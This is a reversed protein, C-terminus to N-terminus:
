AKFVKRKGVGQAKCSIVPATSGVVIRPIVKGGHRLASAQAGPLTAYAGIISGNAASVVNHRLINM